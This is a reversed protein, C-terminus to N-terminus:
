VCLIILLGTARRTGYQLDLSQSYLYLFQELGNYDLHRILEYGVMLNFTQCMLKLSQSFVKSLYRLSSQGVSQRLM